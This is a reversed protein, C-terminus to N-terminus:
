VKEGCETSSIDETEADDKKKSADTLDKVVKNWAPGDIVAEAVNVFDNGQFLQLAGIEPLNIRYNIELAQAAFKYIYKDDIFEIQEDSRDEPMTSFAEWVDAAKLGLDLFEPAIKERLVDDPGLVYTMPLNTYGNVLRAVPVHWKNGDALVVNWGKIIEEKALDAPTPRNATEYGIWFKNWEIWEQKDKYFGVEPTQGPEKVKPVVIVGEVGTGAPSNSCGNEIWGTELLHGIGQDKLMLEELRVSHREPFFYLFGAM